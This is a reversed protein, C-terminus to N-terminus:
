IKDYIILTATQKYKVKIKVCKACFLYNEGITPRKNCYWCSKKNTKRVM